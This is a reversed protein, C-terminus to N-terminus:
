IIECLVRSQVAFKYMVQLIELIAKKGRTDLDNCAHSFSLKTTFCMGLYSYVNVVAM